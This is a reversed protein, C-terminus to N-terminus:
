STFSSVDATSGTTKTRVGTPNKPRTFPLPSTKYDEVMGTPSSNIPTLQVKLSTLKGKSIVNRAQVPSLEFRRLNNQKGHLPSNSVIGEYINSGGGEMLMSHLEKKREGLTQTQSADRNSVVGTGQSIRKGQFVLTRETNHNATTPMRMKRHQVLPSLGNINNNSPM